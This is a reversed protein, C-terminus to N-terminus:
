VPDYYFKDHHPQAYYEEVKFELGDDIARKEIIKESRSIGRELAVARMIKTAMVVPRESVIKKSQQMKFRILENSQHFENM